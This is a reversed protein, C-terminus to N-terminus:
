YTCPFYFKSVSSATLSDLENTYQIYARDIRTHSVRVQDWLYAWTPQRSPPQGQFWERRALVEPRGVPFRAWMWLQLLYVCGGLSPNATSRRCGECLQRYLFCLVTSGWSYQGAQDWNSLCHIWMWSANDGTADPFLVCAFLHLIWARCYYM